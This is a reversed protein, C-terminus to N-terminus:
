FPLGDGYPSYVKIRDGNYEMEIITKGDVIADSQAVKYTINDITIESADINKVTSNNDVQKEAYATSNSNNINCSSISTDTVQEIFRNPMKENELVYTASMSAFYLVLAQPCKAFCNSVRAINDTESFGNANRIMAREVKTLEIGNELALFISKEAKGLPEAEDWTYYPVRTWKGDEDKVNKYNVVFSNTKYIDHLLAVIIVTDYSLNFFKIMEQYDNIMSDYVNVTHALLGGPFAYHHQTSAPAYKFDTTELWNIFKDVGTRNTSLLLEKYRAWLMEIQTDTIM